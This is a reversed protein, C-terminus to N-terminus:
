FFYTAERVSEHAQAIGFLPTRGGNGIDVDSSPFREVQMIRLRRERPIQSM